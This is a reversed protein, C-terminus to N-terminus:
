IDHFTAKVASLKLSIRILIFFSSIILSLFSFTACIVFSDATFIVLAPGRLSQLSAHDCISCTRSSFPNPCPPSKNVKGNLAAESYIPSALPRCSFYIDIISISHIERVVNSASSVFFFTRTCFSFPTPIPRNTPPFYLFIDFWIQFHFSIIRAIKKKRRVMKQIEVTLQTKQVEKMELKKKTVVRLEERKRFDKEKLRKIKKKYLQETASEDRKEKSKRIVKGKKKDILKIRKFASDVETKKGKKFLKEEKKRELKIKNL